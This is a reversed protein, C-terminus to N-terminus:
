TLKVLVSSRADFGVCLVCPLLSLRERGIRRFDLLSHLLQGESLPTHLPETVHRAPHRMAYLLRRLHLTGFRNLAAIPARATDVAHM